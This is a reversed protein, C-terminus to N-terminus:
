DKGRSPPNCWREATAAYTGVGDFRSDNRIMGLLFVISTVTTPRAAGQTLMQLLLSDRTMLNVVRSLRSKGACSTKVLSLCEVTLASM